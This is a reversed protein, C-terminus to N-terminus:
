AATLNVEEESVRLAAYQLCADIDASELYPYAQLVRERSNGAALLRLVNAVTVRLGRICPQGSMVQANLTIRDIANM